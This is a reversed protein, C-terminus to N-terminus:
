WKLGLRITVITVKESNNFAATAVKIVVVIVVVVRRHARTVCRYAHGLRDSGTQSCRNIVWIVTPDPSAPQCKTAM